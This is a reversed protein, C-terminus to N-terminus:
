RLVTQRDAPGINFPKTLSNIKVEPYHIRCSFPSVKAFISAQGIGMYTEIWSLCEKLYERMEQPVIMLTSAIYIPHMLLLGGVPKGPSIVQENECGNQLLTQLDDTLHYPISAIIDGALKLADRKKLTHDQKDNLLNSLKLILSIILLRAIRSTNWVSAVYLDFFADVRGPWYGVESVLGAQEKTIQGIIRPNFASCRTGQWMQVEEDLAM